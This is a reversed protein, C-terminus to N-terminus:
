RWFHIRGIHLMRIGNKDFIWRLKLKLKYSRIKVTKVQWVIKATSKDRYFDRFADM